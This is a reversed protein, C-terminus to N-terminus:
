RGSGSGSGTGTGTGTGIVVCSPSCVPWTEPHPGDHETKKKCPPNLCGTPSWGPAFNSTGPTATDPLGDGDTDVWVTSDFVVATSGPEHAWDSETSSIVATDALPGATLGASSVFDIRANVTFESEYTGGEASSNARSITITGPSQEGDLSVFARWYERTGSPCQIRLWRQSQLSLARVTIETTAVNDVFEADAEREIITDAAGLANAPTTAIPKGRLYVRQTSFASEGNCFFGAPFDLDLYTSLNNPTVWTDIGAAISDSPTGMTSGALGLGLWLVTVLAVVILSGELPKPTMKRFM